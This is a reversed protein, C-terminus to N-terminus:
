RRCLCTEPTLSKRYFDDETLRMGLFLQLM